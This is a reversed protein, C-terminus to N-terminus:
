DLKKYAVDPVVSKPMFITSCLIGADLDGFIIAVQVLFRKIHVLVISSNFNALYNFKQHVINHLTRRVAKGFVAPM